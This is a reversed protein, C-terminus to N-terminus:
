LYDFALISQDPSTNQLFQPLFIILINIHVDPNINGYAKKDQGENNDQRHM